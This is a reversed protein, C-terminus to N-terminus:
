AAREPLRRQKEVDAWAFLRDTIEITLDAAIKDPPMGPLLKEQLDVLRAIPASLALLIQDRAAKPDGDHAEIIRDCAIAMVRLAVDGASMVRSRERIGRPM